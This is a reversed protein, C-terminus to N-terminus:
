GGVKSCADERWYHSHSSPARAGNKECSRIRLYFTLIMPRRRRAVNSISTWTPNPRAKQAHGSSTAAEAGFACVAQGIIFFRLPRHAHQQADALFLAEALERRAGDCLQPTSMAFFGTPSLGASAVLAGSIRNSEGAGTETM